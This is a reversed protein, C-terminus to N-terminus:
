HFPLYPPVDQSSSSLTRTGRKGDLDAWEGAEIFSAWYFPHERGKRKLMALQAERLAEGRGLGSKLGTYYQTMLQRTVYDSVPWLSMVLSETGALFFARRLGYVGEGIKVQGVGTDCASLTVLKTGWLNLESAELATLIGNDTTGKDLNAGALALGSRLLPNQLGPAGQASRTDKTASRVATQTTNEAMGQLFFGHTAIHLLSPANVQKLTAKSAQAGTVVQAEPFLSQIAHAEHFTGHLPAFYVSSLDAATTISRRTSKPSHLNPNTQDARAIQTPTPEGFTPDAVVVPGRKSSRAIQLRLLDRGTSLYGIFYHQVLYHGDEDLLAQFPILNLDSDPSILLQTASGLLGRVPQMVIADLRRSSERVDANLPDRLAARFEEVVEQILRAEGLDVGQPVGNRRIVYVGYRTDSYNETSSIAKPNFPRYAVFELLAANEPIATQVSKLTVAASEARFKLSHRSIEAELEGKQDALNTMRAKYEDLPMKKPGNLGLRALQATTDKLQDLLAQDKPDSRQRLKDMSDTMADLVRGKRQLLVLAALSSAKPDGPALQLNLSVTRDTRENISNIFDLKQQESGIALNDSLSQEIAADVRSQFAVANTLDGLAAYTKAINGLSIITVWESPSATKELIKLARLHIELYNTDGGEYHYLNAINILNGAIDRHEPGLVKMRITLARDYYQAALAYNKAERAVIGLNQLVIASGLYDPGFLKEQTALGRELHPRAQEYQHKELFVLGLNNELQSYLLSETGVTKEAISLALQTNEQAKNFDGRADYVLALIKLADAVWPHEPGLSKREVALAHRLLQEAKDYDGAVRYVNGLSNETYATQPHEPGLERQFIAFSREFLPRAKTEDVKAWYVIGLNRVLIAVYVQSAPSNEAVALAQEAFPLAEGYKGTTVLLSSQTQLKRAEFVTRDADTAEHTEDLRMRYTGSPVGKLNAKVRVSYTGAKEAVFSIQQAGTPLAEDNFKALLSKDPGLLEVLVEIGRQELTLKACQGAELAIQYSQQDGPGLDHEAPTGAVLTTIAEQNQSNGKAFAVQRVFFAPFLIGISLVVILRRM